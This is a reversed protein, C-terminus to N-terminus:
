ESAGLAEWQRYLEELREQLEAVEHKLRRMAHPDRYHVEQGSEEQKRAIEEELQSIAGVIRSERVELSPGSDPKRASKKRRAQPESDRLSEARCAARYEPYGGIFERLLGDVIAFVRTAVREVLYRDHSVFLVTEPFECLSEELAGRAYVDLHNTPEDLILLNAGSLMLRILAVRAKEGGSLSETRLFVEEGRFLFAALLDRVAQDSWRPVLDHIEDFVSRESGQRSLEQEYYGLATRVGRQVSGSLPPIQGVISRLLTTKGCGNPGLIAVRDGRALELTVDRVLVLDGYGCDLRDLRLVDDGGRKVHDFGIRPTDDGREPAQVMELRALKRERSKAQRAKQAAFNRRIFDLDKSIQQQQQEYEKRQRELEESRLRVFDDYNGRYVHITGDRLEHIQNAFGNLFYRDHSAVLVTPETGAAGRPPDELFGELWELMEFDLHNTPEDLLLIDADRLLVTALAVRNREGPSLRGIEELLDERRLGLGTLTRVVRAELDYGGLSEFERALLRHREVLRDLQEPDREADMRQELRLIHDELDRLTPHSELVHQLMTENGPLEPHQPLYAVRQQRPIQLSGAELQLEGLILRFLTTKGSGNRGLLGVRSGTPVLLTVHDLIPKGGFSFLSQELRIM